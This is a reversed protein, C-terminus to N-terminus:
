ASASMKAIDAANSLSEVNWCADMIRRISAAPVIGDALDSFKAELQRDTMPVEVSGVAHEIRRSLTRGDKLVITMEVQEPKIEPTIVPIVKGRLSLVTPDTVARDSFQKEGGAGEVIAVAVAHYISFKGELGQRPTKKGTLELVLPNVKLDIHDIQDAVLKHENRLQIAADIAPHLVIGCAFPKYTNLAAEYRKGLDGVIESYDQKTSITNAWGRKAEIMGDSSTFNKSALIAAFIGNSAARGPNFSKNMSGFSERLGVPQSAALGLAWTMQQENLKLLKGVAAVSGFVGATGTIHWGVDYHNPYVANGIRCEAEVGLVLANLFEKGSVPQMELVALIASAVPGAPHIITKLHTDDFDFIHSSVGNIFAANMIDFRERRGFLSAQQPGSFPGLAAVAIDVTEHRSGGIAVGVWNLLTRAGEKRVNAPLDDYSASVLYRALTRTVDKPPAAKVAVADTGEAAQAVAMNAAVSTLPITAVAQLLTRRDTVRM